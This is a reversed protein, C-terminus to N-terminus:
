FRMATTLLVARPCGPNYRGGNNNVSRIYTENTLNYINLRLNLHPGVPYEAMADVLRYGPSEITNATNIFVDGTARVGAGIVLKRPLEYTTWVSGSFEPTLTLRMGNNAAGQSDLRANLYSFNAMVQWGARVRGNAGVTVGNVRQGDDQNFLPPVATADITYIVNKNVTHFVAGTLALRGDAVDWKTGAELNTSEQPKVNPHNVNNAQTSLTFNAAGPPTVTSGYSVYVNGSAHLKYLLGVKGSGILDEAGIRTTTLGAADVAHFETDYWELRLGGSVQWRPGLEITDFGYLAITNTWGKSVAGTRVVAYGIVPDHPNPAFIDVPGRTGIGGLTPANQEEFIYEVGASAAHQLRGSKFRNTLSTQNSFIKNERENGQRSLTVLNTTPNFAAPNGISSIVAERHAQNYRAQNRVTLRPNVDHEVRAVVNEQSARDYDYGLSGYYNTQDVPATTRVTTPALPEDQWAAGPIGYDPLNNQRVVQGAVTVRTTTGLGLALSPAIAKSGTEVFDRGPVGSDQWLANLRVASKSLWGGDQRMSLPQNIDITARLQDASGFAVSGSSAAPLHPTKTQMNVYGAATGRGVDSGTPGMFVEVQELNFVDRAILGDDRVGDVFLSNAANFGRMNFMDGATNSAGGGEGAQLTIGPVNRLAESLTTVGQQEMAARPIVEITQPINRVPVAYKPSAVLNARGTVTVSEAETRFELAVIDPQTFRFTLSTGALAQDLAQEVTLTGKVGPSTIAGVADSPIVITVGTANGLASLVARLPGGPIDLTQLTQGRSQSPGQAHRPVSAVAVCRRAEDSQRVRAVREAADVRAGAAASAVLAGVVTRAHRATQSELQQRLQKRRAKRTM